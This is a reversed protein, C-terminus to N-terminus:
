ESPPQGAHGFVFNPMPHKSHWLLFRRTGQAGMTLAMGVAGVIIILFWDRVPVPSDVKAITASTGGGVVSGSPLGDLCGNAFETVAQTVWWRFPCRVWPPPRPVPVPRPPIRSPESQPLPGPDKM